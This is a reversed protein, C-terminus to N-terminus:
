KEAKEDKKEQEEEELISNPQQQKVYLVVAAEFHRELQSDVESEEKTVVHVLIDEVM